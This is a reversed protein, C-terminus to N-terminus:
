EQAPALTVAWAYAGDDGDAEAASEYYYTGDCGSVAVLGRLTTRRGATIQRIASRLRRCAERRSACSGKTCDNAYWYWKGMKKGGEGARDSVYLYYVL